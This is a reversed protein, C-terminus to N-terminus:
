CFCIRVVCSLVSSSFIWPKIPWKTRYFLPFCWMNTLGHGRPDNCNCNRPIVNILM